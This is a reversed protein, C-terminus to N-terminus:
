ISFGKLRKEKVAYGCLFALLLFPTALAVRGQVAGGKLFPPRFSKIAKALAFM